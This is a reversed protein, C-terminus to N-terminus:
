AHLSALPQRLNRVVVGYHMWHWGHGMESYLRCSLVQSHHDWVQSCGETARHPRNRGAKSRIRRLKASKPQSDPIHCPMTNCPSRCTATHPSYCNGPLDTLWRRRTRRCEQRNYHLQSPERDVKCELGLTQMVVGVVTRSGVQAQYSTHMGVLLTYSDLLV